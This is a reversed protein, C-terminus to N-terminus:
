EREHIFEIIHVVQRTKGFVCWETPVTVTTHALHISEADSAVRIQGNVTHHFVDVHFASLTLLCTEKVAYVDLGVFAADVETLWKLIIPCEVQASAHGIARAPSAVLHCCTHKIGLIANRSLIGISAVSVVSEDLSACRLEIMDTDGVSEEVGLKYALLSVVAPSNTYVLQEGIHSICTRSCGVIM